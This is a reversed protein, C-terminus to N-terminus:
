KLLLMRKTIIKNGMQLQYIYVGSSLSNAEFTISYYGPAMRENKLTQVKQGLINYIQLQVNATEPVIFDIQTNPNFPNPYNQYLEFVKPIMDLNYPEMSIRSQENVRITGTFNVNPKLELIEFHLELAIDDRLEDIGYMAISLFQDSTHELIEWNEPKQSISSLRISNKHPIQIEISNIGSKINSINIPVTLIDQGDSINPSWTILPKQMDKLADNNGGCNLTVPLGVIYKLITAADYASVFGNGTVDAATSDRGILPYQPAMRVSHRLIFSGDLASVFYDGTVDGCVLSPTGDKDDLWGSYNVFGKSADDYEDYIEDINKPHGEENMQATAEDGWWNFRANIENTHDAQNSFEPGGNGYLNNYNAIVQGYERLIIGDGNNSTITSHEIVTMKSANDFNSSVTLGTNNNGIISSSDIKVASSYVNVGADYGTVYSRSIKAKSVHDLSWGTWNEAGEDWVLSDRTSSFDGVNYINYRGGIDNDKSTVQEAHNVQTTWLNRNEQLVIEYDNHQDNDHTNIYIRDNKFDNNTISVLILEDSDWDDYMGEIQIGGDLVNHSIDININLYGWETRLAYDAINEFINYRIYMTDTKSGGLEQIYLGNYSGTVEAHELQVKSHDRAIIGWWDRYVNEQNERSSKFVIKEQPTGVAHLTSGNLIRLESRTEDRGSARDDGTVGFTPATFFVGVGPEITLRAGDTVDIDGTVLYPSNDKTWTHDSDYVGSVLTMGYYAHDEVRKPNGFSDSEDDYIVRLLSGRRAQLINDGLDVSGSAYEQVTVTGTYEGPSIRTMAVMVTDDPSGIRFHVDNPNDADTLGLYVVVQGSPYNLVEEGQDNLLYVVGSNQAIITKPIVMILFLLSKIYLPM